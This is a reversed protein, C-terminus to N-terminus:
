ILLRLRDLFRDPIGTPALALIQDRTYKMSFHKLVIHKCRVRDGLAELAAGIEAVHTHM